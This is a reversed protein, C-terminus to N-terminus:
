LSKAMSVRSRPSVLFTNNGCKPEVNSRQILHLVQEHYCHCTAQHLNSECGLIVRQGKDFRAHLTICRQHLDKSNHPQPNKGDSILM